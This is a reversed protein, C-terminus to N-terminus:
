GILEGTTVDYNTDSWARGDESSWLDSGQGGLLILLGRARERAARYKGDLNKPASFHISIDVPQESVRVGRVWFRYDIEGSENPPQEPNPM